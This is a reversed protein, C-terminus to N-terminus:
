ITPILTTLVAGTDLVLRVEAQGSPGLAIADVIILDGDLEFSTEYRM